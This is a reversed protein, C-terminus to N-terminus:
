LFKRIMEWAIAYHGGPEILICHASVRLLHIAHLVGVLQGAENFMGGGSNGFFVEADTRYLLKSGSSVKNSVIGRTVTRKEGLPAGIVWIREGIKGGVNSVDAYPGDDKEKETGILLALDSKADYKYIVMKRIEKKRYLINVPKDFKQRDDVVHAATLVIMYDNRQNHIITGAGMVGGRDNLVSVSAAYIGRIEPSVDMYMSKVCGTCFLALIILVFFKKM